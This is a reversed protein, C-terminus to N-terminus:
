AEAPKLALATEAAALADSDRKLLALCRGRHAHYEACGPDFEIAKDIFELGNGIRGVETAIMGLLFHADAHHPEDKLIRLCCQQAPAFQRKGLLEAAQRQLQRSDVEPASSPENM